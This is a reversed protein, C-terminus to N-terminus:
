KGGFFYGFARGMLSKSEGKIKQSLDPYELKEFTLDYVIPKPELLQTNMPVQIIHTYGNFNHNKLGDLYDEYSLTIYEQLNEYQEKTLILNNNKM